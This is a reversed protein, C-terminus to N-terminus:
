RLFALIYGIIALLILIYGGVKGKRCKKKAIEESDSIAIKIAEKGNSYTKIYYVGIVM